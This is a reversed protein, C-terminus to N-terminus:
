AWIDVRHGRSPRNLFLAGPIEQTSHREAAYVPQGDQYGSVLAAFPLDFLAGDLSVLWSTKAADAPDLSGFLRKYLDAGM